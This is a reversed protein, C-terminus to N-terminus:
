GGYIAADLAQQRAWDLLASHDSSRLSDNGPLRTNVKPPVEQIGSSFSVSPRSSSLGPLQERHIHWGIEEM